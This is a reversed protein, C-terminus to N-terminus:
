ANTPATVIVILFPPMNAAAGQTVSLLLHETATLVKHTGNLDGLDAYDSTPPQDGTNYTKSVITNAGDDTVLIVVTNNDDVGAPQGQTLIGISQLTNARPHAFIPRAAIDIGVALDEVPILVIQEQHAANLTVVGDNTMTADGSPVVKTNNAGTGDVGVLIEGDALGELQTVAIDATASIKAGTVNADKIKATTVADAALKAATVSGDAVTNGFISVMRKFRAISAM